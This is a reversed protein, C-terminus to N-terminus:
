KEIKDIIKVKDGTKIEKPNLVIEEECFIGKKIQKGYSTKIKGLEVNRKVGYGKTVVIVCTNGTEDTFICQEPVIMVNKNIDGYVTVTADGKLDEECVVSVDAKYLTDTVKKLTQLYGEFYEGDIYVDAQAGETIDLPELVNGSVYNLNGKKTVEGSFTFNEQMDQGTVEFIKVEVQRKNTCYDFVALAFM